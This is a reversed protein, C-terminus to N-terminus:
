VDFNRTQQSQNPTYSGIETGDPSVHMPMAVNINNVHYNNVNGNNNFENVNHEFNYQDNNNYQNDDYQVDYQNDNATQHNNMNFQQHNENYQGNNNHNNVGYYNNNHDNNYQHNNHQHNNNQRNNNHANNYKDYNYQHSNYQHSNYQQNIYRNSGYPNNRGEYIYNIDSIETPRKKNIHYGEFKYRMETITNTESERKNFDDRYGYPRELAKDSKYSNTEPDVDLESSASNPITNGSQVNPLLMMPIMPIPPLEDMKMDEQSLCKSSSLQMMDHGNLQNMANPWNLNNPNPIPIPSPNPLINWSNSNVVLQANMSPRNSPMSNIDSQGNYNDKNISNNAEEMEAIEIYQLQVDLVKIIYM